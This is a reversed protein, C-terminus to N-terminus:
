FEYTLLKVTLIDSYQTPQFSNTDDLLSCMFEISCNFTLTYLIPMEINNKISLNSNM